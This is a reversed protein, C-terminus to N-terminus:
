RRRKLSNWTPGAMSCSIPRPRDYGGAARAPAYMASDNVQMLIM